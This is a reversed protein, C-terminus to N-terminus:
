SAVAIEEDVLGPAPEARLEAVCCPCIGHTIKPLEVAEMLRMSAAVKEIKKWEGAVYVNHCWGCMRLLEQRQRVPVRLAPPPLNSSETPPHFSWQCQVADENLPSFTLSMARPVAGDCRATLTVPRQDKAVRDLIIRYCEWATEDSIFARLNRHVVDRALLPVPFCSRAFAGWHESLHVITHNRDFWAVCTWPWGLRSTPRPAAFFNMPARATREFPTITSVAPHSFTSRTLATQAAAFIM